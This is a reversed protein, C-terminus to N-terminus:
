TNWKTRGLPCSEEQWWMLRLNSPTTERVSIFGTAAIATEDLIPRSFRHPRRRVPVPEAIDPAFDPRRCRARRPRNGITPVTIEARSPHGHHQRPDPEPPRGSPTGRAEASQRGRSARWRSRCSQEGRPSRDGDPRSGARPVGRLRCRDWHRGRDVRQGPGSGSITTACSSSIVQNVLRQRLKPSIGAGVARHPRPHARSRCWRLSAPTGAPVTLVSTNRALM